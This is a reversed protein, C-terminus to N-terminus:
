PGIRVSTSPPVEWANTRLADHGTSTTGGPEGTRSAAVGRVSACAAVRQSREGHADGGRGDAGQVGFEAYETVAASDRESVGHGGVRGAESEETRLEIAFAAENREVIVACDDTM